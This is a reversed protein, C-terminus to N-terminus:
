MVRGSNGHTRPLTRVHGQGESNNQELSGDEDIRYGISIMAFRAADGARVRMEM